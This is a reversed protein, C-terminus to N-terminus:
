FIRFTRLENQKLRKSIYTKRRKHTISIREESPQSFCQSFSYGLLKMM